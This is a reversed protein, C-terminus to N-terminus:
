NNFWLFLSQKKELSMDLVDIKTYKTFLLVEM